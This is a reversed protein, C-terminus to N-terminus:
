DCLAYSLPALCSADALDIVLRERNASKNFHSIPVNENEYDNEIM